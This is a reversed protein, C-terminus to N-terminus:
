ITFKTGYLPPCGLAPYVHKLSGIHDLHAHTIM